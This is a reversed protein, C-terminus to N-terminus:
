VTVAQNIGHLDNLEEESWDRSLEGEAYGLHIWRDAIEPDLDYEEGAVHDDVSNIMKVKM